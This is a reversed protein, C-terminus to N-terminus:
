NAHRYQQIAVNMIGFLKDVMLCFEATGAADARGCNSLVKSATKSLVQAALRVNM